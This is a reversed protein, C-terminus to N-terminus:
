FVFPDLPERTPDTMILLAQRWPSKKEYISDGIEKLIEEPEAMRGKGTLGSALEGSAPELITNGSLRWTNMYSPAPHNLMDMDMAHPLSFLAVPQFSLHHATLNDATGNAMKAISNATAPAILFFHTGLLGLTWCSQELWREWAPFVWNICSKKIFNCSDSTNYVRKCQSDNHSTCQAGDKVLM